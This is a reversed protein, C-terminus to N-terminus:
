KNPTISSLNRDRIKRELMLPFMIAIPIYNVRLRQSSGLNVSGIIGYTSFYISTILTFIILTVKKFHDYKNSLMGM